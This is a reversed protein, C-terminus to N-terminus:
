GNMAMKEPETGLADISLCYGEKIILVVAVIKNMFNVMRNLIIDIVLSLRRMRTDYITNIKKAIFVAWTKEPKM